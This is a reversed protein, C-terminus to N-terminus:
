LDDTRDWCQRRLSFRELISCLEDEARLRESEISALKKRGEEALHNRLDLKECELMANALDNANDPNVLLAANGVQKALHSSYIIPKGLLWAEIPPLNTPGFYTPMVVAISNEYLGRLDEAPVFGVITLQSELQHSKVYKKIYSLNGYDKGSFVVNPTRGHEDRLIRLAQLIRIHNKHAWFQAPYYFYNVKLNYKELVNDADSAVAEDLYPTPSFPMALFRNREVGYYQSAMDSLCQSDTLTILAPGFNHKYNNERIFFTTFSRVEPFEPMTRHCLDWLTNIYNLQQLAACLNGPSVFYVVDCGHRILKKELPGILKLRLQLSQWLGDQSYKALLRDILGIKILTTKINLQSLFISNDKKTTFVEFDFRNFSLRQMQIVANLAQDVGGGSGVTNILIAIVKIM